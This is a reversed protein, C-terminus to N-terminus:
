REGKMIRSVTSISIGYHDAMDCQKVGNVRIQKIIDTKIEDTIVLRPYHIVYKQPKHKVLLDPYNSSRLLKM